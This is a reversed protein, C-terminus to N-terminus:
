KVDESSKGALVANIKDKAMKVTSQDPVMVSAADGLEACMLTDGTGDVMYQEMKWTPNNNLQYKILDTIEENSMTTSFTNAMTDMIAAYNTIVSPKTAEKVIGMLVQQQNKTRQRDGETYSYRERAFTLAQEGNLHNIGENVNLYSTHVAYGPEVYVDVGGLIDVLETVTDFGVKFTYNIEIGLLQEVTRKTTNTGHIGTHTIKDLAGQMCGDGADCATTVYFDRPVSTLLITHTKPNVTAIMIVDSRGNEDFGGRTDSGSILVNFPKSTIDSVSTASDNNKVKYSTQYVVRTNSDFNSYAEMDLIQSRSSENIIISDVEGNYFAELLATMSDYETQNLVIGENSLEKLAKKSGQENLRLSGVSVGNLQSKNKISSSEKVIVSVTNKAHKAVNTISSLVNQTKSIYYGGMCTAVCIFLTLVICVIKSVVNKSFYVLLLIFIADLVVVGITLPFLFKTPLVNLRIVQYLLYFSSIVLVVSLVVSLVKSFKSKM